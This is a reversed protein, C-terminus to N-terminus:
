YHAYIMGKYTAYAFYACYYDVCFHVLNTLTIVSISPVCSCLVVNPDTIYCFYLGTSVVCFYILFCLRSHRYM